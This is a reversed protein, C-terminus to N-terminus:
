MDLLKFNVVYLYILLWLTLIAGPIIKPKFKTLFQPFSFIFSVAFLEFVRSALVPISSLIYFASLMISFLKLYIIDEPALSNQKAVAWFYIIFIFYTSLSIKSFVNVNDFRGYLQAGNIYSIAKESIMPPFFSFFSALLSGMDGIALIVCLFMVPAFFVVKLNIKKNSLIVLPLLVVASFHFLCAICIKTLFFKKHKNILDPIALLFFASAVGVRIQTMDHLIYFMCIYVLLSIIVIESYKQIAYIKLTVALLAYFFFLLVLGDSGAWLDALYSFFIFAPEKIVYSGLRYAEFAFQYSTSDADMGVPRFTAILVLIVSLMIAIIVSLMRINNSMSNKLTM